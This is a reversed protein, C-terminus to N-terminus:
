IHWVTPILPLCQTTTMGAFCIKTSVVRMGYREGTRIRRRLGARRAAPRPAGPRRRSCCFETSFTFLDFLSCRFDNHNKTNHYTTVARFQEASSSEWTQPEARGLLAATCHRAQLLARGPLANDARETLACELKALVFLAVSYLRVKVLM